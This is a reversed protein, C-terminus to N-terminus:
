KVESAEIENYYNRQATRRVERYVGTVQVKQGPKLKLNGWIFVNIRGGSEGVLIFTTYDDKVNATKIKLNSVTGKVSVEKGDYADKKTIIKEVTTDAATCVSFNGLIATLILLISLLFKSTCQKM